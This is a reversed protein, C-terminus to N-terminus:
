LLGILDKPGNVLKTNFGFRKPMECDERLDDGVILCEKPELMHYLILKAWFLPNDKKCDSDDRTYLFSVNPELQYKAVYLMTEKRFHNTVIGIQKGRNTLEGFTTVIHDLDEADLNIANGLIDYYQDMLGLIKCLEGPVWKGDKHRKIGGEEACIDIQEPSYGLTMKIMNVVPEYILPYIGNDIITGGLDFLYTEIAM